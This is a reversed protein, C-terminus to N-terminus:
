KTPRSLIKRIQRVSLGLHPHKERIIRAKASASLRPDLKRGAARIRSHRLARRRKMRAAASGKLAANRHATARRVAWKSQNRCAAALSVVLLAAQPRRALEDRAHVLQESAVVLARIRPQNRDARADKIDRQIQQELHDFAALAAAMRTSPKEV